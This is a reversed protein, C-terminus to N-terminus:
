YKQHKGMMYQVLDLFEQVVPNRTEARMKKTKLVHKLMKQFIKLCMQIKAKFCVGLADIKVMNQM